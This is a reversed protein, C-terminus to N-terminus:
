HRCHIDTVAPAQCVGRRDLSLRERRVTALTVDRDAGDTSQEFHRVKCSAVAGRDSVPRQGVRVAPVDAASLPVIDKESFSAAAVRNRLKPLWPFNIEVFLKKRSLFLAIPATNNQSTCTQRLTRM